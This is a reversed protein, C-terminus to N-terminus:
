SEVEPEAWAVIARLARTSLILLLAVVQIALALPSLFALLLFFGLRRM